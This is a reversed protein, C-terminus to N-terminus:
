FILWIKLQAVSQLHSSVHHGFPNLESLCCTFLLRVKGLVFTPNNMLYCSHSLASVSSLEIVQDFAMRSLASVTKHLM